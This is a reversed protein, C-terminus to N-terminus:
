LDFGFGVYLNQSRFDFESTRKGWPIHIRDVYQYLYEVWIFTQNIGWNDDLKKAHEKDLWNLPLLAGVSWHLGSVTGKDLTQGGVLQEMFFIFSVGGKVFPVIPQGDIFELRYFLNVRLPFIYFYHDKSARIYTGDEEILGYGKERFFGPQVSIGPIGGVTPIEFGFEGEILFHGGKGYIDDWHLYNPFKSPYFNTGYLAITFRRPSASFLESPFIFILFIILFFRSSRRSLIVTFIMLAIGLIIRDDFLLTIFKSIMFVLNSKSSLNILSPSVKHYYIDLFSATYDTMGFIRKIGRIIKYSGYPHYYTFVCGIEESAFDSVGLTKAPIGEIEPSLGSFKNGTDWVGISILYKVGNELGSLTYSTADPDLEVYNEYIDPSPFDLPNDGKRWYIVYRDLDRDPHKDWKLFLVRDGPSARLGTPIDPVNDLVFNLLAYETEGGGEETVYIYVKYDGDGNKFDTVPYLYTYMVVDKNVKGEPKSVILTGTGKTGNGGVEIRYDGSISSSWKLVVVDDDKVTSGPYIEEVKVSAYVSWWVLVGFIVIFRKM